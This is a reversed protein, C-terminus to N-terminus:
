KRKHCVKCPIGGLKLAEDRTIETCNRTCKEAWRCSPEHFKGNKSNYVVTSSAALVPVVLACVLLFSRFAKSLTM